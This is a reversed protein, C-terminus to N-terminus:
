KGRAAATNLCREIIISTYVDDIKASMKSQEANDLHTPMHELFDVFEQDYKTDVQLSLVPEDNASEIFVHIGMRELDSFAMNITKTNPKQKHM